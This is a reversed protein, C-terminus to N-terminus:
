HWTIQCAFPMTTNNPTQAEDNSDRDDTGNTVPPAKEFVIEDEDNNTSNNLNSGLVINGEKILNRDTKLSGFLREDNLDAQSNEIAVTTRHSLYYIKDMCSPTNSNCYWLARLAPFVACLLIYMFKWFNEENIDQVAGKASNTLTLELFKQQHITAKLPQQLCLLQIMAYFWLAM